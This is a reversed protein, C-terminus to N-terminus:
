MVPQSLPSPIAEGGAMVAALILRSNVSSEKAVTTIADKIYDVVNEDGGNVDRIAPANIKWMENFSLWDDLAPYKAIDGNFCQYGTSPPMAKGARLNGHFWSLVSSSTVSPHQYFPLASSTTALASLFFLSFLAMHLRSHCFRPFLLYSFGSSSVVLFHRTKSCFLPFYQTGRRRVLLM